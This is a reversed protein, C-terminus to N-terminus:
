RGYAQMDSRAVQLVTVGAAHEATVRRVSRMNRAACTPGPPRLSPKPVSPPPPPTFPTGPAMHRIDPPAPVARVTHTHVSGLLSLLNHAVGMNTNNTAIPLSLCPQLIPFAHNRLVAM